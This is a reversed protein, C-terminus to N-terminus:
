LTPSNYFFEGFDVLVHTKIAETVQYEEQLAIM